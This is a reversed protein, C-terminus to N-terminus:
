FSAPVRQSSGAQTGPLPSWRPGSNGPATGPAHLSLQQRLGSQPRGADRTRIRAGAGPLPSVSVLRLDGSAFVERPYVLLRIGARGRIGAAAARASTGGPPGGRPGRRAWRAGLGGGGRRSCRVPDRPWLFAFLLGPRTPETGRAWCLGGTGM